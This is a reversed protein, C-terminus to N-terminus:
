SFSIEAASQVTIRCSGATLNGLVRTHHAVIERAPLEATDLTTHADTVLVVDFGESIARRCTTDICYETQLGAIVLREIGRSVLEQKLATGLFADCYDKEIELDHQASAVGLALSADPQVRRDRIFFVPAGAERAVFIVGNIQKIVPDANWASALLSTQADIVLLATVM